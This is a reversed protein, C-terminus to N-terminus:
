CVDYVIVHGFISELSVPMGAVRLFSSAAFGQERMPCHRSCRSARENSLEQQVPKSEKRYPPKFSAHRYPLLYGVLPWIHDDSDKGIHSYTCTRYLIHLAFYAWIFFEALLVYMSQM